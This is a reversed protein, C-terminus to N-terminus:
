TGNRVVMTTGSTANTVAAALEAVTSVTVVNGEPEPLAPATKNYWSLDSSVIPSMTRVCATSSPQSEMDDRLATVTIYHWVDNPRNTLTYTIVSGDVLISPEDGPQTHDTHYDIRYSLAGPVPSWAVTATTDGGGPYIYGSILPIHPRALTGELAASM